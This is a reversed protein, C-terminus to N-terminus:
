SMARLGVESTVVRRRDGVALEIGIRAVLAPDQVPRGVRDLYRLRFSAVDGILPNAGGDVQRMLAPVSRGDRGLYYRVRNVVSISSGLLFAAGVPETLTLTGRRGDRALRHEECLSIGCVVIQKGKSWGTGDQVKLEQQGPVAAEILNTTLGALNALFTVEEVQASLVATGAQGTGTGALRLEAELIRLGIRLDQHRAMTTQQAALRRDFHQLAQLMASLVVAGATMAIMLETLCLGANPKMRRAGM